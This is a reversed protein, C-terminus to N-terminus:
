RRPSPEGAAGTVSVSPPPAQQEANGPANGKARGARGATAEVQPDLSAACKPCRRLITMGIRTRPCRSDNPVLSGACGEGWPPLMPCGVAQRTTRQPAPEGEIQDGAIRVTRTHRAPRAPRATLARQPLVRRDRGDARARAPSRPAPPQFLLVFAPRNSELLDFGSVLLDKRRVLLALQVRHGRGERQADVLVLLATLRDAQRRRSDARATSARGPNPLRHLHQNRQPVARVARSEVPM